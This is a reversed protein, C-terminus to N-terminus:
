KMVEKLEWNIGEKVWKTKLGKYGNTLIFNNLRSKNILESLAEPDVSLLDKKEEFYFDVYDDDCCCTSITLIKEEISSKLEYNYRIESRDLLYSYQNDARNSMLFHEVTDIDTTSLYYDVEKNIVLVEILTDELKAIGFLFGLDEATKRAEYSIDLSKYDEFRIVKDIGEVPEITEFAEKPINDSEDLMQLDSEENEYSECVPCEDTYDCICGARKAKKQKEVNNLASEFLDNREKYKMDKISYRLITLYKTIREIEKALLPRGEVLDNEIIKKIIERDAM